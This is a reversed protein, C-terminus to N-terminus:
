ATEGGAVSPWSISGEYTGLSSSTTSYAFHNPMSRSLSWSRKQTARSPTLTVGLVRKGNIPANCCKGGGSGSWESRNREKCNIAGRGLFQFGHLVLSM